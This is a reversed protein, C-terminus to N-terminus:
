PTGRKLPYATIIVVTDNHRNAIVKVPYRIGEVPQILINKGQKQPPKKSIIEDIIEESISYLKIRKKVHRSFIIKM